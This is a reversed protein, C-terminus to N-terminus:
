PSKHADSKSNSGNMRKLLGFITPPEFGMDQNMM